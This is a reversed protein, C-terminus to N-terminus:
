PAVRLTAVPEDRLRAPIRVIRAGDTASESEAASGDAWRATGDTLEAPLRLEGASPDLAHVHVGAASQTYRRPEGTEEGFRVWPRTGHITEGNTRMWAGLDRMTRRQLEPIRGAADPGVNILLNGNKSVVDVLMRILDPGSLTQREDEAQNYGFSYGLGRTSEWPADLIGPIHTYERTLFGHYPVGWRDNVVGDPVRAFYRRLLAAVAFDDNGKGGDPWEIDNWLVDPSFREVLEAKREKLAQRLPSPAHAHAHM